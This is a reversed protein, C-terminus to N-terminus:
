MVEVEIWSFGIRIKVEIIERRENDFEADYAAYRLGSREICHKNKRKMNSPLVILQAMKRLFRYKPVEMCNKPITLTDKGTDM